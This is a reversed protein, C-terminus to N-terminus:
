CGRSQLTSVGGACQGGPNTTYNFPMAAGPASKCVQSHPKKTVSRKLTANLAFPVSIGVTPALGAKKDGGCTNTRNTISALHATAGSPMYM